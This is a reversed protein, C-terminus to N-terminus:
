KELFKNICDLAEDYSTGTWININNENRHAIFMEEESELWDIYDRIEKDYYKNNIITQLEPTEFLKNTYDKIKNIDSEKKSLESKLSGILHKCDYSNQEYKYGLEFLLYEIDNDLFRLREHEQIKFENFAAKNIFQARYPRDKIWGDEDMYDEFIMKNHDPLAKFIKDLHADSTKGLFNCIDRFNFWVENGDVYYRYLKVFRESKRLTSTIKM